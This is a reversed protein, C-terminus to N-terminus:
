KEGPDVHNPSLEGSEGNRCVACLAEIRTRFQRLDDVQIANIEQFTAAAAAAGQGGVFIPVEWGLYRRIKKLVVSIKYDSIGHGISIALARANVKRVAYAMEEAPLCPGLYMVRWGSEAAAVASVLAGCEHGHGTPTAIVMKPATDPVEVSKLMDWLMSRVIASLMHEHIIKLNGRAWLGGIKRFTPILVDQLFQHRPLMVAAQSLLDELGEDDLQLIHFLASDVLDQRNKMGGPSSARCEGLGTKNSADDVGSDSATLETLQRHSFTAVSSISHGRNVAQGLLSLREIDTDSYLRRNTESRKPRVAGYRSEWSRILYPKLGSKISAYRIPHLKSTRM